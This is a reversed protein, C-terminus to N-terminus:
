VASHVVSVGIWWIGDDSLWDSCVILMLVLPGVGFVGGEGSKTKGNM